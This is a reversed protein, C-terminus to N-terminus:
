FAFNTDDWGYIICFFTEVPSLIDPTFEGVGLNVFLHHNSLFTKKLASTKAHAVVYSTSDCGTITHFSHLGDVSNLPLKNVVAGIPIYKRRQSTGSMM